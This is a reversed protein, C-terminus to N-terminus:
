LTLVIHVHYMRITHVNVFDVLVIEARGILVLVLSYLDKRRGDEIEIRM